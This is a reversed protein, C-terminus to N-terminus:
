LLLGTWVLEVMVTVVFLPNEVRLYRDACYLLLPLSKQLATFGFNRSISTLLEMAMRETCPLDQQNGHGQESQGCLSSKFRHAQKIKPCNGPSQRRWFRSSQTDHQFLAHVHVHSIVDSCHRLKHWFHRSQWVQEAFTIEGGGEKDEGLRRWRIQDKMFSLSIRDSSHKVDYDWQPRWGTM